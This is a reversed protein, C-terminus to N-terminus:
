QCVFSLCLGPRPAMVGTNALFTSGLVTVSTSADGIFIASGALDSTTNQFLSNSITTSSAYSEVCGGVNDTFQCSDVLLNSLKSDKLAQATKM